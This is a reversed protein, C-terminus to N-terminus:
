RMLVLEEAMTPHLAVTADFDAKKLRAKVAIAAAQMIEPADPGILHVGVVEDSSDDVVLKYLSRENRGALVNKMPRFDSTFTRISGLRNKAQGETLGVAAIPPHSFVSSPVCSYDVSVQKGGFQTDAFAQGERIAVPTLQIRDTVDGVAFISPVSSRYDDDVIVAGRESLKVGVEELGLGETNPTRGIAFLVEDAAIDECGNMRCVLSGDDQKEIASFSSKFRMDIGKAISIKVLRDVVQEDYGRLITDSRNVLTVHAGFQHFIGAFENAIYGGGAIVIRKPMRELHFVENSTIAHEIGAVEPLAPRAGVAILIKGATITRGSATRVEHPGTVTAREKILSVGHSGLTEGYAGELRTVEALVNDRLVPWDFRKHPVDWGFMAADDLDEAFHAGYVLLKKPVCGRIVCTGGIRHEEAVAVQAGHAAAIRGARVGGSGAGIIFLDYDFDSM